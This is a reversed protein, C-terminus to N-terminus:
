KKAKLNLLFLIFALTFFGGPPLVMLLAPQYSESFLRINFVAGTGIIERLAGISTLALSFGLGMGAGDFLSSIITNKSAFAEARGLIICNVM